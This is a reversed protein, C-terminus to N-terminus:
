SGPFWASSPTESANLITIQLQWDPTQGEVWAAVKLAQEWQRETRRTWWERVFAVLGISFTLCTGISGVAIWFDPNM